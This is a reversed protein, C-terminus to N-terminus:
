MNERIGAVPGAANNSPASIAAELNDPAAKQYIHLISWECKPYTFPLFCACLTM